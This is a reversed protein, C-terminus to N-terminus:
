PLEPGGAGSDSAGDAASTSAGDAPSTGVGDAASTGAGDAGGAGTDQAGGQGVKEGASAAHERAFRAQADLRQLWSELLAIAAGQDVAAKGKRKGGSEHIRRQSLASTLREDHMVVPLASVARVAQAFAEAAQAAEGRAGSLLLPLGVLISEAELEQALEAVRRPAESPKTVMLTPLGSAITGTPDSVALGIRRAGWDVALIRPM